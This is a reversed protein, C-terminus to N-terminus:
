HELPNVPLRFFFSAGLGARGEARVSGGHREVIRRVSALGIGHGAYQEQSHLRQFPRFLKAAYEPEFGAGNDRVFIEGQANRGVEIRADATTATFKWANGVLNDMLNRLLTPDGSARLGPEVVFDVNRGPDANRLDAAIEGAMASLDVPAFKLEARSVRSMKLLADILESMRASANRIRQLYDLGSADIVDRYRENLLRSFGDISRLPARLDHSVSYAFTELEQNAHRLERTRLAVRAELTRNLAQVRAEARMRETVDEVQVLSAFSEGQEGPVTAFVLSAHRVEGDSRRLRRTVRYAGDEALSQREVTRVADDDGDVFHQGLLTGQLDQETTGLLEVLAPNAEQIRGDRDLLAKGIASYRMASRFRHESRRHSESMRIAIRRAQSQTRALSLAVAFLLLSALLGIALTARLGASPAAYTDAPPPQVDIRWTRGHFEQIISHRPADGDADFRVGDSALPYLLQEQDGSVDTIRLSVRAPIERLAEAIFVRMRFLTYSWGLFSERRADISAPRAGSRYIPAYILIGPAGPSSTDQVLRVGETMRTDGTDRAAAMARARAPESFMDFGVANRNGDTQPELYLIPGYRERVGHPRVEFFGQGADRMERQLSELEVPSLSDAFGLGMMEPFRRALDLGDVYNRWQLATPREVTAFLSVGGRTTLEYVLMKRRLLAATQTADSVLRAEALEREREGAYRAYMAVLILSGVFVLVALLYAHRSIEPVVDAGQAPQPMTQPMRALM